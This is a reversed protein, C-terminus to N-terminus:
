RGAATPLNYTKEAALAEMEFSISRYAEGSSMGRRRNRVYEVIYRWYFGLLGHRAIQRVHALEHRVFRELQEEALGPALYIRRGLTIGVVGRMLFPRLWWPFAFRVRAKAANVAENLDHRLIM